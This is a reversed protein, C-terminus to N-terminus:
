QPHKKKKVKKKLFFIILATFSQNKPKYHSKNTVSPENVQWYTVCM